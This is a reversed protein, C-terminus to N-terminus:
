RPRKPAPSSIPTSATWLTPSCPTSDSTNPTPSVDSLNHLADGLLGVSGSLLAFSLEILGTAALGVASVGVARNAAHRHSEDDAHRVPPFPDWTQDQDLLHM